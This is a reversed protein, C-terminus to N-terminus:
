KFAEEVGANEIIIYIEEQLTECPCRAVFVHMYDVMKLWVNVERHFM